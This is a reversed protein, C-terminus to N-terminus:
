KKQLMNYALFLRGLESIVFMEYGRNNNKREVLGFNLLIPVLANVYFNNLDNVSKSVGTTLIGTSTTFLELASIETSLNEKNLNPPITILNVKLVGVIDEYEFVGIYKNNSKSKTTEHNLLDLKKRLEDNEARLLAIESIALSNDPIEDGRIWGVLGKSDQIDIISELIAIIIESENKCIRCVKSLVLKRFAQYKDFNDQEIVSKGSISVKNDVYEDDLVIAFFPKDIEIAYRYEIETYSLQSDPEITGYRGGLILTYIDSELIWKKIVELQSKNGASFLEMGAPIHGARLVSQVAAQREELLDSYTSSVFIQLKKKM